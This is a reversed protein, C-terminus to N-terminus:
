AGIGDGLCSGCDGENGDGGIGDCAVCLVKTGCESCFGAPNVKVGCTTLRRGDHGRGVTSTIICATSEPAISTNMYTGEM